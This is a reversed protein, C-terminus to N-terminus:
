KRVAKAQLHQVEETLLEAFREEVKRKDPHKQNYLVRIDVQAEHHLKDTLSKTIRTEM